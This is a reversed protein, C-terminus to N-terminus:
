QKFIPLFDAQGSLGVFDGVFLDAYTGNYAPPTTSSSAGEEAGDQVGVVGGIYLNGTASGAFRVMGSNSFSEEAPVHSVYEDKDNRTVAATYISVTNHSVVDGSTTTSDNFALGVVGGMYVNSGCSGSFVVNGRNEAYGEGYYRHPISAHNGLFAWGVLGGMAVEGSCTAGQKFIISGSNSSGLYDWQVNNTFGAIGGVLLVPLADISAEIDGSNICTNRIRSSNKRGIIGGVLARNGAKGKAYIKAENYYDSIMGLAIGSVGGLNYEKTVDVDVTITATSVNKAYRCGDSDGNIQAGVCGGVFLAEAKGSVNIAANNTSFVGSNSASGIGCSLSGVIGSVFMSKACNVNNVNIAGNNTVVKILNSGSKMNHAGVVGGVALSMLQSATNKFSGTFETGEAITIPANNVINDFTPIMCKNTYTGGTIGAVGGVFLAYFTGSATIAASAPTTINALATYNEGIIGGVRTHGKCDVVSISGHNNVNTVAPTPATTSTSGNQILGIVGGIFVPDSATKLQMGCSINGYNYCKDVPTAGETNLTTSYKRGAIGGTYTQYYNIGTASITGRNVAGVITGYASAIIGGTYGIIKGTGDKDIDVDITINGKNTYYDDGEAYTCVLGSQSRGVIGGVFNGATGTGSTTRGGTVTINGSNKLNTQYVNKGTQSDGLCGALFFMGATQNYAPISINGTNYLGNHLATPDNNRAVCGGVFTDATSAYEGMNIMINGSNYSDTITNAHVDGVVGGLLLKNINNNLTFTIDAENSCENMTVYGLGIVGGLILSPTSNYIINLAGKNVCKEFKSKSNNHIGVLGGFNMTVNYTNLLGDTTLPAYNTCNSVVNENSMYGIFAGISISTQSEVAAIKANCKVAGKETDGEVGNVCDYFSSGSRGAIGGVNYHRGVDTLTNNSEVVGENVARRFTYQNGSLAGAVGGFVVGSTTVSEAAVVYGTNKLDTIEYTATTTSPGEAWGIVGGAYFHYGTCNSFSVKGHNELHKAELDTFSGIVGGYIYCAKDFAEATVIIDGYNKVNSMAAVVATEGEAVTNMAAYATAGGVGLYYFMTSSTLSSTTIDAYNDCDTLKGGLLKGVMGGICIYRPANGNEDRELTVEGSHALEITSGEVVDCNILEGQKGEKAVLERAIAGWVLDETLTVNTKINLNKITANTTGFLPANLGAITYGGGDFTLSYGEIPTWEGSYNLPRTVVAGDYDFTGSAVMDAFELLVAENYIEFIEGEVDSSNDAFVINKFERVVGAKIAKEGTCPVGATMAVEANDTCFKAKMTGYDGAPVAIYLTTATESLAIGGEPLQYTLTKSADEHATLAGTACNVDFTGALAGETVTLEVKTLKEGSGKVEFMLVGALYNLSGALETGEVYGYLPFSAADFTGETYNQVTAFQVPLCGETAAALGETYPYVISYAEADAVAFTFEAVSRDERIAIATTKGENIRLVDGEQWEVPYKEDATKEGLAVKTDTDLAISLTKVSGGGVFDPSTVLDETTDNTCAALGVAAFLLALKAIKKMMM